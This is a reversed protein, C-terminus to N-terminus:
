APKLTLRSATCALQPAGPSGARLAAAAPNLLSAPGLPALARQARQHVDHLLWDRRADGVAQMLGHCLCIAADQDAAAFAMAGGAAEIAMLIAVGGYALGVAECGPLLALPQDRCGLREALRVLDATASTAESKSFAEWDPQIRVQLHSFCATYKAIDNHIYM